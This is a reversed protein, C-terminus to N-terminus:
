DETPRPILAISRRIVSLPTSRYEYPLSELETYWGFLSKDNKDPNSERALRVAETFDDAEIVGDMVWKFKDEMSFPFGDPLFKEEGRGPSKDSLYEMAEEHTKAPEKRWSSESRISIYTDLAKLIVHEVSCAHCSARLWGGWITVRDESGCAECVSCSLEEYKSVIKRAEDNYNDLYVRLEGFKEKIQGYEVPTYSDGHEAIGKSNLASLEESMSKLLPAWGKSICIGRGMCSEMDSLHWQKFLIPYKDVLALEWDSTGERNAMNNEGEEKPKELKRKWHAETAKIDLHEDISHKVIDLLLDARM